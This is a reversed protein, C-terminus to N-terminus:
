QRHILFHGDSCGLAMRASPNLGKIKYQRFLHEEVTSGSGM